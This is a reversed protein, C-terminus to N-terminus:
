PHKLFGFFITLELPNDTSPHNAHGFIGVSNGLGCPRAGHIAHIGGDDNNHGCGQYEPGGDAGRDPQKQLGRAIKSRPSVRAEARNRGGRNHNFHFAFAYCHRPQRAAIPLLWRNVIKPTLPGSLERGDRVPNMRVVVIMAVMAMAIKIPLAGADDRLTGCGARASIQEAGWALEIESTPECPANPTASIEEGTHM